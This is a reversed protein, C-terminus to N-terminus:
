GFKINVKVKLRYNFIGTHQHIVISNALCRNFVSVFNSATILGRSCGTKEKSNSFARILWVDSLIHYYIYNHTRVLSMYSRHHKFLRLVLVSVCVSIYM